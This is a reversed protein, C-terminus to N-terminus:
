GHFRMRHAEFNLFHRWVEGQGGAQPNPILASISIPELRSAVFPFILEYDWFTRANTRAHTIQASPTAAAATPKLPENFAASRPPGDTRVPADLGVAAEQRFPRPPPAPPPPDESLRSVPCCILNFLGWHM